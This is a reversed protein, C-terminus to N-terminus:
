MALPPEDEQKYVDYERLIVPISSCPIMGFETIVMDIFEPPTVDYVINIMNINSPINYKELPSPSPDDTRHPEPILDDPIDLENFVFCDTQVRAAWFKYTECCVIVPIGQTKANMAVVATGIRGMMHGNAFFTQAGLFVKTAEKMAYSAGTILVYSCEIGHKTLRTMLRRGELRPRSDIIIVRFDKKQDHASIFIQEIVDSAGHIAIIDGDDIRSVGDKCIQACSITIRERVFSDIAEVIEEKAEAEMIDPRLNSITLKVFKIANRMSVSLPRCESLYSIHPRLLSELERRLEKDASAEFSMFLEKFADLMYICRANSGTVVNRNYWLGVRVVAPHFNSNVPLDLVASSMEKNVSLHSFLELRSSAVPKEKKLAGKNVDAKALQGERAKNVGTGGGKQKANEKRQQRSPNNIGSGAGGGGGGKGGKSQDGGAGHTSGKLLAKRERDAEQKARREAKTMQSKPKRLPSEENVKQAIEVDSANVVSAEDPVEFGETVKRARPTAAIVKQSAKKNAQDHKSDMDNEIKSLAADSQDAVTLISERRLSGVHGHASGSRQSFSSM